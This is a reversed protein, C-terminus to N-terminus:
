CSRHTLAITHAHWDKDSVPQISVDADYAARIQEVPSMHEFKVVEVLVEIHNEGETYGDDALVQLVQM